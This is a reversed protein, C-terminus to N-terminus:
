FIISVYLKPQILNLYEKSVSGSPVLLVMPEYSFLISYSDFYKSLLSRTKKELM